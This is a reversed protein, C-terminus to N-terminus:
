NSNWSEWSIERWPYGPSKFPWINKIWSKVTEFLYKDLNNSVESQRVWLTIEADYAHNSSPYIYLCWLCVKEDLSMVTYAFSSKKQFEKQHWWLDILDQELTLADTPWNHYPWFPKTVQLHDISTMVADYDKIVDNVTLMRLRLKETEYKVPVEFSESILASNM